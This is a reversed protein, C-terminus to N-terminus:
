PTEGIAFLINNRNKIKMRKIKGTKFQAKLWDEEGVAFAKSWFDCRV